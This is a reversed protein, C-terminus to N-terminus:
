FDKRISAWITRPNGSMIGSPRRSAIYVTDALNKGVVAFTLGTPANAYAVRADILTRADIQGNTGDPTSEVTERRDAFQAAIYTAGVQASFGSPHIFGLRADLTNEPAYPLALGDLDDAWGDSFRSRVHTYALTIPLEFDLFALTAPDFVLALEAGIHTTQGANVLGAESQSAVGGAESPAIVQNSFDLFFGAAEARLYDAVRVRTGLEINWSYEADLDIDEGSPTIADQTRPPAFGRHVGTFLTVQETADFSLGLGPIPAIVATTAAVPPGFDTPTGDVRTRDVRRTTSIYEFRFGPSVRFREAFIFRNHVYAALAQTFQREDERVNGSSARATTGDFRQLHADEFHGRMGGIFEGRASGLRYDANIRSEVGATTYRRDRNGTSNRFFIGGGDTPVGALLNGDEDRAPSISQGSSGVIREYDRDSFTRDFDQRRWNRTLIGGYLVSQLQLSRNIQETHTVSGAFRQTALRDYDAFNSQPEAEFQPTTLGLYSANSYEDYISLKIGIAQRDTLQLRFRALVDTSTLNLDRPGAFRNHSAQIYYGVQGHTSGVSGVASAFGFSGYRAELHSEFSEPPGHTILNIVGGITQPGFLVSGSGKVVEIRAIRDISPTYYMEPASYPAVSIPIGDELILVSRSRDPNLGRFGVNLRLGMGEEDVVNVGPVTRLIEGVSQPAAQEIDDASIIAASGPIHDLDEERSGIVEIERLERLERVPAPADDETVQPETVRPETVRPETVRPETVQPETAQPADPEDQALGTAAVSLTAALVLVHAASHRRSPSLHM